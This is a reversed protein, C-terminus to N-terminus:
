LEPGLKSQVVYYIVSVGITLIIFILFSEICEIDDNSLDIDLDTIM